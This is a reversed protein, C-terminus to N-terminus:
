LQGRCNHAAGLRGGQVDAAFHPVPRLELLVPHVARMHRGAAFRQVSNHSPGPRPRWGGAAQACM